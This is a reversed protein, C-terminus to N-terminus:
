SLPFFPCTRKEGEEEEEVAYNLTFWVLAM